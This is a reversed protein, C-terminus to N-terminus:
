PSQEALRVEVPLLRDERRIDLRITNSAQMRQRLLRRLGEVSAVKVGDVAV